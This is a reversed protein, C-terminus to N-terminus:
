LDKEILTWRRVVEAREETSSAQMEEHGQAIRSIIIKDEQTKGLSRLLHQRVGNLPYGILGWLGIIFSDNHTLRQHM